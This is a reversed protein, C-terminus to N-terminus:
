VAGPAHGTGPDQQWRAQVSRAMEELKGRCHDLFFRIDECLAQRWGGSPNPLWFRPCGGQCIDLHRCDRCAQPRERQKRDRFGAAGERMETLPRDAIRGLRYQESVFFDCPYVSGDREVVLHSDCTARFMCDRMPKGALFLVLDDFLKVSISRSREAVWCEFLDTLFRGYAGVPLRDAPEGAALPSPLSFGASGAPPPICPIFQLYAAGLEDALYRYVEGARRYNADHVVCLVNVECRRERLLHWARLAADHSPAGGASCRAADHVDAPGDISLGVLFRNSALFEAWADDVLVGNTQFANAVAQGPQALRNQIAIAARYFDIGALTPEGGQWAFVVPSDGTALFAQTMARLVHGDMVAGSAGTGPRYFCYRCRLNCRDGVPKVLATLM